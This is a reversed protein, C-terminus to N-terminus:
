SSIGCPPLSRFIPNWCATSVNPFLSRKPNRLLYSDPSSDLPIIVGGSAIVSLFTSIWDPHQDSCLAIHKGDLGLDFLAAGLADFTTKQDNYTFTKREKEEIYIYLSKDGYMSANSYVLEKVSSLSNIDRPKFKKKM